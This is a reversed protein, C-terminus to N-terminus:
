CHGPDCSGHTCLAATSRLQGRPRCISITSCVATARQFLAPRTLALPASNTLSDRKMGDSSGCSAPRCTRFAFDGLAIQTRLAAEGLDAHPQRGELEIRATRPIEREVVAHNHPETTLLHILSEISEHKRRRVPSDLARGIDGIHVHTVAVAKRDAPLTSHSMSCIM